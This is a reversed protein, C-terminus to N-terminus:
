KNGCGAFLYITKRQIAYEGLDLYQSNCRKCVLAVVPHGLALSINTIDVCDALVLHPAVM